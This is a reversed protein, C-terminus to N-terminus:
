TYFKKKILNCFRGNYSKNNNNDTQNINVNDNNDSNQLYVLMPNFRKNGFKGISLIKLYPNCLANKIRSPNSKWDPNIVLDICDIRSDKEKMIDNLRTYGDDNLENCIFLEVFTDNTKIMTQLYKWFLYLTENFNIFISLRLYKLNKFKHAFKKITILQNKTSGNVWTYDFYLNKIGSCDCNNIVYNCWDNDIFDKIVLTHCNKSWIINYYMRQISIHNAYLLKLPSIQQKRNNKKDVSYIVMGYRLIKQKSKHMIAQLLPLHGVDCSGTIIEVNAFMSLKTLLSM